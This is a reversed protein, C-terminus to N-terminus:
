GDGASVSRLERERELDGLVHLRRGDSVIAATALGLFLGHGLVGPVQELTRALTRPPPPDPFELDLLYNGNDTLVPRGAVQRLHPRCGLEQACVRATGRWDFPLVEAPVGRGQGLRRVHKSPDALVWFRLSARAVVKERLLAGGGGKLLNLVRDYQDAGDLDLDLPAQSDAILPIGAGKALAETHVSTCLAEVELGSRVREGLTQVLASAMRGSGLGLRMGSRIQAAAFEAVQAAASAFEAPSPEPEVM